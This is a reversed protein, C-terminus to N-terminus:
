TKRHEQVHRAKTFHDVQVGAMADDGSHCDACYRAIFPAVTGRYFAEAQDSGDPNGAPKDAKGGQAWAAPSGVCVILTAALAALWRGRMRSRPSSALSPRKAAIRHSPSVEVTTSTRYRLM